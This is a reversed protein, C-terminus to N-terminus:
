TIPAGGIPAARPIGGGGVDTSVNGSVTSRDLVLQTSGLVGVGAGSVAANATVVCRSLTITVASECYVGGGYDTVFGNRITLGSLTSSVRVDFVRDTGNGDVITHAAGGGTITVARHINLDGTAEDQSIGSPLISLVYASANAPVIIEVTGTATHNAEMVAARLTCLGGSMACVGDGTNADAGDATTNVTFTLDAAPARGPLAALLLLLLLLLLPLLRRM